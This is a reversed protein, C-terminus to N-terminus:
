VEDKERKRLQHSQNVQEINRFSDFSSNISYLQMEVIEDLPVLHNSAGVRKFYKGKCSVPKIPYEQVKVAVITKGEIDYTNMEPYIQPQTSQKIINVWEKMIEGNVTVGKVM